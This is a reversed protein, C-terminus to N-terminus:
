SIPIMMGEFARLGMYKSSGWGVPRDQSSRFTSRSWCVMHVLRCWSIDSQGLFSLIDGDFAYLIRDPDERDHIQVRLKVLTRIRADLGYERLFALVSNLYPSGLVGM